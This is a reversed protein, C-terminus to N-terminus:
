KKKNAIVIDAGADSDKTYSIQEKKHENIYDSGIGAKVLFAGGALAGLAVPAATNVMAAIAISGLVSGATEFGAKTWLKENAYKAEKNIENLAVNKGGYFKIRDAAEKRNSEIKMKKAAEAELLKTKRQNTINEKKKVRAYHIRGLPTLTGDEYQYLRNGWKQGKMGHHALSDKKYLAYSM